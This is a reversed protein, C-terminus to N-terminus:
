KPNISITPLAILLPNSSSSHYSFQWLIYLSNVILAVFSHSTNYKVISSKFRIFNSNPLSNLDIKLDIVALYSVEM